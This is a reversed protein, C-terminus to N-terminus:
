LDTPWSPSRTVPPEPPIEPETFLEWILTIRQELDENEPLRRGLRFRFDCKPCWFCGMDDLDSRLDRLQQKTFSVALELRNDLDIDLGCDIDAHAREKCKPCKKFICHTAGM